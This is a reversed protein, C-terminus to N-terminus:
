GNSKAEKQVIKALAMKQALPLKAPCVYSCCGCQMCLDVMLKDLMAAGRKEYANAIEVPALGMPCAHICKGCRICASSDPLHALKESFVLIANNQKVVPANTSLQASGMMPGGALVKAAETKYGGCFQIVDEYLTGIIVEVNKPEAVADGDVTLRKTTLPMGTTLYKGLVAATSVNMVVVGVDSPLGGRPVERGTTKKILVKEAGQPYVSPLPQVLYGEKGKIAAYMADIAAPKNREIAIIVRAIHLHTKVADLGAFILDANELFERNDATIYPECEAGNVVLTDIQDLNKPSLKVATPFGAGGLGVLGCARVAAVLEEHNTVTPAKIAPDPTQKGDPIIVVAEAKNGAAFQVTDMGDVTGSVGSHIDASVFGTAKGLLTGVYVTYGKKVVCECPAGIHMQMPVVIKAPVPMQVTPMDATNKHHPVHAGAASRILKKLM